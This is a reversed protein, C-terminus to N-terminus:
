SFFLINLERNNNSNDLLAILLNFNVKLKLTTNRQVTSGILYVQLQLMILKNDDYILSSCESQLIDDDDVSVHGTRQSTLNHKIFISTQNM